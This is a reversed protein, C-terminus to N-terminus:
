FHVKEYFFRKVMEVCVLYCGVIGILVLQVMPDMPKIALLAGLPTFPLAIAAAAVGILSISMTRSPFSYPSTVKTRLIFIVGIQSLVAEFFWGSRFQDPTAHVIGLLVWFTVLDFLSSLLGFVIMFKKIFGINWKKPQQVWEQDVRDTPLAMVAVDTLLNSSLVQKPLLPLFPIVFSAAAMSFINGFNSSTQMFLYKMTNIFTKRGEIIGDLLTDIDNNMLIIDASNKAADIGNNVCIAVDASKLAAIDNVGDGMYGVGHGARILLRVIRDKDFPDLEAFIDVSPAKRMLAQDSFSAIETGTLITTLGLQQGIHSAINRNDGTLIKLNVGLSRMRGITQKVGEKLPDEFLLFGLFIMNQEDDHSIKQTNTNKYAVAIVRFGKASYQEFVNALKDKMPALAFVENEIEVRDCIDVIRDVAGKTVLITQGDIEALISLRKRTFDYPIEDFKVIGDLTIGEAKRIAVDLPNVFGTELSANIYAHRIIKENPNAHADISAHLRLDGTTITGTKDSCFVDMSGFNEISILRKVIVGVSAMRKAGFALSVGVIAPLLTPTIGVSLSLAFLLSEIFPRHFYINVAFVVFTLGFAINMLLYGFRRIGREFQTEKKSEHLTESLKGFRTQKGTATCRARAYGSIVYTGAYITNQSSKEVPFSEGTLMSENVFLDKAEMLIADGAIMSGATLVLIDGPVILQSSLTKQKNDRIVESTIDVHALLSDVTQVASREQYFDILASAIIIFAIIAADVKEGLFFALVSAVILLFSLPTKFQSAFLKWSSLHDHAATINRGYKKLLKQAEKESLGKQLQVTSEPNFNGDNM